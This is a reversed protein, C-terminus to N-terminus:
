LFAPRAGEGAILGVHVRGGGRETRWGAAMMTSRARRSSTSTSAGTLGGLILPVAAPLAVILMSQIIDLM